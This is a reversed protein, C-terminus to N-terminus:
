SKKLQCSFVVLEEWPIKQRAIIEYEFGLEELRKETKKIGTISSQVFLAGGGETLYAPCEDLFKDLVERGTPGGDIAPVRDRPDTPLYPPNFIIFDYEGDINEFLDSQVANIRMSSVFRVVEPDIDAATVSTVSNSKEAALAQFGSGTGMDLVRGRARKEVEGALLYSDERPEYIM